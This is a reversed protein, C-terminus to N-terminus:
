IEVVDTMQELNLLVCGDVANAGGALGSRAGQAVVPVAHQSAIRMVHQVEATTRARVLAIAKGPPCFMARDASYAAVVDDHVVVAGAPLGDALAAVGEGRTESM